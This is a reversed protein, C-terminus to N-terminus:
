YDSVESSTDDRAPVHTRVASVDTIVQRGEGKGVCAVFM